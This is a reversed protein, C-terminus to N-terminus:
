AHLEGLAISDLMVELDAKIFFCTSAVDVFEKLSLEMTDGISFTIQFKEAGMMLPTNVPSPKGIEMPVRNNGDQFFLIPRAGYLTLLSKADNNCDKRTVIGGHAHMLSNRLKNFSKFETQHSFQGKFIKNIEKILQKYDFKRVQEKLEVISTAEVEQIKQYCWLLDLSERVAKYIDEFGKLLLWKKYQAKGQSFNQGQSVQLFWQLKLEEETPDPFTEIKEVLRMGMLVNPLQNKLLEVMPVMVEHKQM